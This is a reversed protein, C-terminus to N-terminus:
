EGFRSELELRTPESIHILSLAYGTFDLLVPKGAKKAYEMGKDYDHFSILNQPGYEAGEPLPTVTEALNKSAGFGDPSESYQM